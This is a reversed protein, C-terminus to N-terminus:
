PFRCYLNRHFSKKRIELVAATEDNFVGDEADDYDDRKRQPNARIRSNETDQIRHKQLRKRVLRRLFEDHHPLPKGSNTNVFVLVRRRRRFEHIDAAMLLRKVVNRGHLRRTEVNAHTLSWFPDEPLQHRRTKEVNKSHLSMGASGKVGVFLLLAAI